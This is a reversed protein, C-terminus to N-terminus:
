GDALLTRLHGLSLEIVERAISADGSGTESHVDLMISGISVVCNAKPTGTPTEAELCYGQAGDFTVDQIAEEGLLEVANARVVGVRQETLSGAPFVIFSAQIIPDPTFRCIFTRVGLVPEGETGRQSGGPIIEPFPEPPCTNASLRLSAEDGTVFSVATPSAPEDGGEDGDDCAVSYVVTLLAAVILVSRM